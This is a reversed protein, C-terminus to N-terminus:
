TAYAPNALFPSLQVQFWLGLPEISVLPLM